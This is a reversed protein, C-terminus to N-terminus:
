FIIKTLSYSKQEKVLLYFMLKFLKKSLFTGRFGKINVKKVNLDKKDVDDFKVAYFNSNEPLFCQSIDFDEVGVEYNSLLFETQTNVTTNGKM